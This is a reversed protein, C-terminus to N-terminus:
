IALKSVLVLSTFDTTDDDHDWGFVATPTIQEWSPAASSGNSVLVQGASGFNAGGVAIPGNTQIRDNGADIFFLDTKTDGEVRFDVDAGVDNFVVESTGFEVRETGNTALALQNAGPSYIGTDLDGSFSVSPSAASGLPFLLSGSPTISGDSGILLRQVGGTTVALQNAGPSYIGTDTDGGTFTIGPATQSGKLARIPATASYPQVAM